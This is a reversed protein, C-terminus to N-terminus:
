DAPNAEGKNLQRDSVYVKGDAVAPGAYGAGIPTRWKVTLKAPLKEVVGEERWVGDRKPGHWQPWDDGVALGGLCCGVLVGFVAGLRNWTPNLFRPM